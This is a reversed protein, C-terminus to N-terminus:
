GSIRVQDGDAKRLSKIVYDLDGVYRAVTPRETPPPSQGFGPVDILIIRYSDPLRPVLSTFTDTSGGLGHLCILLPGSKSGAELYHYKTGGPTSVFNSKM